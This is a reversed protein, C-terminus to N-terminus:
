IPRVHKIPFHLKVFFHHQQDLSKLEFDVSAWLKETFKKAQLYRFYFHNAM